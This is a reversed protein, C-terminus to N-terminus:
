NLRMGALLQTVNHQMMKLYSSGPENPGSLADSYLTGGLTADADKSLQAILKPNSMNEVFVAKIKERKIQRILGAVHKASPTADANVGEPALFKIQYHAAFYGFADHSTIVKRKAEPVAAFQARAQADFDKLLAAYRAANTQYSSAGAPDLKALGAAINQVYLVVNQPNQWAHPDADQHGHGHGHGAEERQLPKVGRSAVVTAGQYAASKALKEAWPEFNLGNIVFLRAKLVARADAPKPEFSHADADPGVLTTVQVREGGVVRVLDGLISFSAVVPIPEAAVTPLPLLGSLSLTSLALFKLM